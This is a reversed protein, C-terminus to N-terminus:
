LRVGNGNPKATPYKRPHFQLSYCFPTASHRNLIACVPNHILPEAETARWCFLWVLCQKPRISAVALRM